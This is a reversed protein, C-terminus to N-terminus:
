FVPEEATLEIDFKVSPDAVTPAEMIEKLVEVSAVANAHEFSFKLVYKDGDKKAGSIVMQAVRQISEVLRAMENRAARKAAEDDGEEALIKVSTKATFHQLAGTLNQFNAPIKFERDYFAM